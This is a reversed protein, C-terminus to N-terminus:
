RHGTGEPDAVTTTDAVLVAQVRSTHLGVGLAVAVRLSAVDDVDTRLTTLIGALERAGAARHRAASDPGFTPDFVAHPAAYLTTGAGSADAVFSPEARLEALAAALDTARLAPLDACVAVLLADEPQSTGARRLSENLEGADPAVGAGGARAIASITPDDTVVVVEDVGDTELLVTLTDLAFALALERRVAHGLAALRSKALEPRKVPLLVVTPGM